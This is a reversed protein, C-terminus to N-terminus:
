FKSSLARHILFYKNLKDYSVGSSASKRCNDSTCDLTTLTIPSTYEDDHFSIRAFRRYKFCYNWMKGEMEIDDASEHEEYEGHRAAHLMSPNPAARAAM